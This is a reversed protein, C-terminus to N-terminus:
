NVLIDEVIVIQTTNITIGNTNAVKAYNVKFTNEIFEYNIVELTLSIANGSADTGTITQTAQLTEQSALIINDEYFVSYVTNTSSTTLADLQVTTTANTTTYNEGNHLATEASNGELVEHSGHLSVVEHNENTLQTIPTYDTEFMAEKSCSTFSILALSVIAFLVTKM